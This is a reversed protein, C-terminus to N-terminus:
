EEGVKKSHKSSRKANIKKRKLEEKMRTRESTGRSQGMEVNEVLFNCKGPYAGEWPPPPRTNKVRPISVLGIEICCSSNFVV